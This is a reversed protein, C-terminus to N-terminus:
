VGVRTESKRGAFLWVLWALAAILLWSSAALPDFKSLTAALSLWSLVIFGVWVPLVVGTRRERMGWLFFPILFTMQEYSLGTPHILFTLIGCWALLHLHSIRGRWHLCFLFISLGASAFWGLVALPRAAAAPLLALWHNVPSSRGANVGLYLRIQHIWQAFWGPHWLLPLLWLLACGAVFGAALKWWRRRLVLVFTFLLFFWSFQPKLTTVALLAGLWASDVSRAPEAWLVRAFFIMWLVALLLDFNGLILAFSVPYFAWLTAGAWRRNRPSLALGAALVALFGFALWISQAWDFSLFALPAVLLLGFIPYSYAFQDEDPESLRGQIDMQIERAVAPDYPSRGEIFEARGAKWFTYFDAGLPNNQLVSHFGVALLGVCALFFLPYLFRFKQSAM